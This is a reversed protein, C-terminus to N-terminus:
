NESEEESSSGNDEGKFCAIVLLLTGIVIAMDSFNFVPFDYGFINFDLFDRVYGLFVRDLLNGLIGGILLGFGIINRKSMVFDKTFKIVVILAVISFIIFFVRQGKFISWAAGKNYVYTLSFFNSIVNLSKNASLFTESLIKSLQDIMLIIVSVVYIKKKM